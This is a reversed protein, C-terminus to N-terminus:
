SSTQVFRCWTGTCYAEAKDRWTRLVTAKGTNHAEVTITHAVERSLQPIVKALAETVYTFSHIDDNYLMVRWSGTEERRQEKSEESSVSSTNEKFSEITQRFKSSEIVAEKNHELSPSGLEATPTPEATMKLKQCLQRSSPVIFGHRRHILSRSAASLLAIIICITINASRRSANLLSHSM